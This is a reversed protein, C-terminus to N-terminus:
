PPARRISSLGRKLRAWLRWLSDALRVARRNRFNEIERELDAMGAFRDELNLYATIRLQRYVAKEFSVFPKEGHREPDYGHQHAPASLPLISPHDSNWIPDVFELRIAQAGAGHLMETLDSLLLHSPHAEPWDHWYQKLGIARLYAEDEFSPHRILIFEQAVAAAVAIMTRATEFDRLHELFDFMSVYRVLPRRPLERIDGYVIEVGKAQAKLVAEQDVDIGLGRGGIHRACYEMSGGHAPGFDFFDYAGLDVDDLTKM